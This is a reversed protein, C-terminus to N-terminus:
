KQITNNVPQAPVAGGGAQTYAQNLTEVVTRTLDHNADYYLPATSGMEIAQLKRNINAFAGLGKAEQESPDGFALVINFSYAKAARVIVENIEKWLQELQQESKKAVLSRAERQADEMARKCQVIKEDIQTKPYTSTPKKGEQDWQILVKQLEDMKDKYPKLTAEMEQKFFTAKKYGSFVAGINVVGIRTGTYTPAAQGTPAQALLQHGFYAVALAAAGMAVLIM